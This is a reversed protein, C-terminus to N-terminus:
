IKKLTSKERIWQVNEKITKITQQPVIDIESIQRKGRYLLAVAIITSGGGVIGYCTWIPWETLARLLHVLMIILLLGGVAAIGIGAGFSAAAAKTKRAEEYLEHKALALEQRMLLAADGVLGNVLQALTPESTHPASNM